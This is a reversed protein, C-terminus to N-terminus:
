VAKALKKYSQEQGFFAFAILQIPINGMFQKFYAEISGV